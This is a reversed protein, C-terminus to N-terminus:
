VRGRFFKGLINNNLFMPDRLVDFTFMYMCELYTLEAKSYAYELIERDIPEGLRHLDNIIENSSYYKLWNSEKVSKLRRKSDPIPKTINAQFNKKGIYSTGNGPIRIFYVFGIAGPPTDGLSKVKKNKYIWDM